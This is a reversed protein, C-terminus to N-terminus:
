KQMAHLYTVFCFYSSIFSNSFVGKLTLLEKEFEMDYTHAKFGTNLAHTAIYENYRDFSDGDAEPNKTSKM